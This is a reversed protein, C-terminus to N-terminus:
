VVARQFLLRSAPIGKWYHTPKTGRIGTPDSAAGAKAFAPRGMLVSSSELNHKKMVLGHLRLLTNGELRNWRVVAAIVELLVIYSVIFDITNSFLGSLLDGLSTM